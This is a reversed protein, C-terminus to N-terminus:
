FYFNEIGCNKYQNLILSYSNKTKDNKILDLDYFFNKCVLNNKHFIRTLSFLATSYFGIILSPMTKEKLFFIEIPYDPKIIKINNKLLIDKNKYLSENRHPFFSIKKDSYNNIIRSIFDFYLEKDLNDQDAVPSGLIAIENSILDKNINFLSKLYKFSNNEVKKKKYSINFMTYFEFDFNYNENINFSLLNIGEDLFIVKKFNNYIAIFLYYKYDGVICINKKPLRKLFFLLLHFIKVNFLRSLFYINNKKSFDCHLKKLQSITNESCYGVVLSIDNLDIREKNIYELLCIYQQPSNILYINKNFCFYIIFKIYIFIKKFILV